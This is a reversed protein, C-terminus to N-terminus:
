KLYFMTTGSSTCTVHQSIELLAHGMRPETTLSLNVPVWRYLTNATDTEKANKNWQGVMQTFTSYYVLGSIFQIISFIAPHKFKTQYISWYRMKLIGSLRNEYHNREKQHYKCWGSFLYTTVSMTYQLWLFISAADWITSRFGMRMMSQGNM